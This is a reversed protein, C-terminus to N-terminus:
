VNKWRILTEQVQVPTKQPMTQVKPGSQASLNM